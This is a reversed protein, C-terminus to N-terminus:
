LSLIDAKFKVNSEIIIIIQVAKRVPIDRVAMGPIPINSGVKTAIVIGARSDVPNRSGISIIASKIATIWKRCVTTQCLSNFIRGHVDIPIRSPYKIIPKIFSEIKLGMSPLIIMIKTVISKIRRFDPILTLWFFIIKLAIIPQRAPTKVIIAFAAPGM